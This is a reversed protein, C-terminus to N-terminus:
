MVPSSTLLAVLPTVFVGIGDFAAITDLIMTAVIHDM